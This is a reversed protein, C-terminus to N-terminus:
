DKKESEKIAMVEAADTVGQLYASAFLDPLTSLEFCYKSMLDATRNRAVEMAAKPVPQRVYSM